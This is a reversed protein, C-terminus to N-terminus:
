RGNRSQLYEKADTFWFGSINNLFFLSIKDIWASVWGAFTLLVMVLLTFSLIVKTEIKKFMLEEEELVEENWRGTDWVDGSAHGSSGVGRGLSFDIV